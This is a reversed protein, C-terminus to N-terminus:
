SDAAGPIVELFLGQTMEGPMNRGKSYMLRFDVTYRVCLSRFRSLKQQLHTEISGHCNFAQIANNLM